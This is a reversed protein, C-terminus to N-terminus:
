CAYALRRETQHILQQHRFWDAVSKVKEAALTPFFLQPYDTEWALAEAENLALRVLHKEEEPQDRFESLIRAKLNLTLAVAKRCLALPRAGFTPWGSTDSPSTFQSKM